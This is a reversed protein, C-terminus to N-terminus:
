ERLCLVLNKLEVNTLSDLDDLKTIIEQSLSNAILLSDLGRPNTSNLPISHLECCYVGDVFLVAHGGLYQYTGNTLGSIIRSKNFGIHLKKGSPSKELTYGNNIHGSKILEEFQGQENPVNFKFIVKSKINNVKPESKKNSHISDNPTITNSIKEEKEPQTMQFIRIVSIIALSAIVMATLLGYFFKEFKTVKGKVILYIRHSLISGPILVAIVIAVAKPPLGNILQVIVVGCGTIAIPILMFKLKPNQKVISLLLKLADSM